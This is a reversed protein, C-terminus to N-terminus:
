PAHTDVSDALDHASRSAGVTAIITAIIMLVLGAGINCLSEGVGQIVLKGTDGDMEPIKTFANIVGTVFGLCSVLFTLATLHRVVRQRGRTPDKAYRAAALVLVLGAITTPYMGWGGLRFAEMM